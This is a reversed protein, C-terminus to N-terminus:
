DVSRLAQTIDVKQFKKAFDVIYDVLCRITEQGREFLEDVVEKGLVPPGELDLDWAQIPIILQGGRYEFNNFGLPKIEEGFINRMTYTEGWEGMYGTDRLDAINKGGIALAVALEAMFSGRAEPFLNPFLQRGLSWWELIATIMGFNRATEGARILAERNGGHGNLIIVRRVGNRYLSQFIDVYFRELTDPSIAISGPYFKQKVNEGYTVVPLTVLGTRKGVEDALKEVSSSDISIPTPGHGHLTGLPLIVTESRKFAEEAEKWSM